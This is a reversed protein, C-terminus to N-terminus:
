LKIYIGFKLFTNVENKFVDFLRNMNTCLVNGKHNDFHKLCNKSEKNRREFGQMNFIGVGLRHRSYTTRVIQPMYFRLAHCYFTEAMGDSSGRNSLFTDRGANYFEQVDVEFANMKDEYNTCNVYTIGLFKFLKQWLELAKVLNSLKDTEILRATLFEVVKETISVFLAIENGLFSSFNKKNKWVFLHFENWITKLVSLCFDEIVISPQRLLFSQLYTM